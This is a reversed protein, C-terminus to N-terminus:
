FTVTYVDFTKGNATHEFTGGIYETIRYYCSVGIGGSFSRHSEGYRSIGYPAPGSDGSGHGGKMQEETLAWLKYKLTRDFIDAIVTSEKDYGYGYGSCTVGDIRSFSGDTHEIRTEAHPNHGYMRSKKWEITIVMRKVPKQNREADIRAADKADKRAQKRAERNAQKQEETLKTKM